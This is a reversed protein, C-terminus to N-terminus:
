EREEALLEYHAHELKLVTPTDQQIMIDKHTVAILTPPTNLLVFGFQLVHHYKPAYPTNSLVTVFAIKTMTM